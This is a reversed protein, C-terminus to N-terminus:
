GDILEMKLVAEKGSFMEKKSPDLTYVVKKDESVYPFFKRPIVMLRKWKNNSTKEPQYERSKLSGRQKHVALKKAPVNGEPKVATIYFEKRYEYIYM